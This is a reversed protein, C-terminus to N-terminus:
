RPVRELHRTDVNPRRQFNAVRSGRPATAADLAAAAVPDLLAITAQNVSGVIALCEPSLSPRHVVYPAGAAPTVALAEGAELAQRCARCIM